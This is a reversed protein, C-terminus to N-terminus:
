TSFKQKLVWGGTSGFIFEKYVDTQILLDGISCDTPLSDASRGVYYRRVPDVEYLKIYAM